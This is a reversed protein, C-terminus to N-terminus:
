NIPRLCSWLAGGGARTYMLYLSQSSTDDLESNLFMHLQVKAEVYTKMDSHKILRM